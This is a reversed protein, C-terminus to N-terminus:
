RAHAQRSSELGAMWCDPLLERGGVGVLTCRQAEALVDAGTATVHPMHRPGRQPRPPARLPQSSTDTLERKRRPSLLGGRFGM